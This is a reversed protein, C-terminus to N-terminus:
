TIHVIKFFQFDEMKCLNGMGVTFLNKDLFFGVITEKHFMKYRDHSHQGGNKDELYFALFRQM